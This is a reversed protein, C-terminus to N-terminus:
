THHERYPNHVRTKYTIRLVLVGGPYADEIGIITHSNSEEEVNLALGDLNHDGLLALQLLALYYQFLDHEDLGAQGRFRFYLFVPLSYDTCPFNISLKEETGFDLAVAPFRQNDLDELDGKTIYRWVDSGDDAMTQLKAMLQDVVRQRISRGNDSTYNLVGM